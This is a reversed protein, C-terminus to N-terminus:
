RQIMNITDGKLSYIEGNDDFFVKSNHSLETSNIEQNRILDWAIMTSSQTSHLIEIGVKKNHNNTLV